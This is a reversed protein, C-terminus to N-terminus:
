FLLAEAISDAFLLGEPTPKISHASCTLLGQNELEDFVAKFLELVNVGYLSELEDIQWGDCTRFGFAIVEGLRSNFDIEDLEPSANELWASLDRLQTWRLDGDFSSAAPGIGLYTAGKWINYNHKCKFGPRSYNSIEYRHLGSDGMVEAIRDYMDVALDDDLESYKSALPTGEELILSYASFHPIELKIVNELDGQWDDMTQGPIAYIMDININEFGCSRAMDLAAYLQDESTRRGLTHRTKRSTSQAGFSLRNVGYKKLIKFKELNVTAPNCEVSYEFGSEQWNTRQQIGDLLAELEPERLQTPTGGGIFISDLVGLRSKELDLDAQIKQVFLERVSLDNSVISYLACYDCINKCFPVHVYLSNFTGNRRPPFNNPTKM